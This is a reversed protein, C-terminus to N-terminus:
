HSGSEWVFPPCATSCTEVSMRVSAFVKFAKCHLRVYRAAVAGPLQNTVLETDDHNGALEGSSHWTLGDISSSISYKSIFQGTAPRGGTTVSRVKKVSGLDLEIWGSTGQTLCAANDRTAGEEAYRDRTATFFKADSCDDHIGNTKWAESTDKHHGIRCLGCGCGVTFSGSECKSCRMAVLDQSCTDLTDAYYKGRESEPCPSCSGQKAGGCLQLKEGPRCAAAARSMCDKCYTVDQARPQESYWGGACSKCQARDNSAGSYEGAPCNKCLPQGLQDQYLGPDCEQCSNQASYLGGACPVCDGQAGAEPQFRGAACKTCAVSEPSSAGSADAIRYKGVSCKICDSHAAEPQYRGAGCIPCAQAQSSSSAVQSDRFTGAPCVKCAVMGAADQYRGEGCIKCTDRETDVVSIECGGIQVIKVNGFGWAANLVDEDTGSAWKVTIAGSCSGAWAGNYKCGGGTNHCADMAGNWVLKGDVYVRDYENGRTGMGYSTWFVACTTVCAELPFSRQISVLEKGWPGHMKYASSTSMGTGVRQLLGAGWGTSSIYNPQGETGTEDHVVFNAQQVGFKGSRSM